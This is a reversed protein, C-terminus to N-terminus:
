QKSPEVKEHREFAVEDEAKLHDKEAMIKHNPGEYCCEGSKEHCTDFPHYCRDPKHCCETNQTM